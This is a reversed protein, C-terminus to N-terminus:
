FSHHAAPSLAEYAAKFLELPVTSHWHGTFVAVMCALFITSATAVPVTWWPLRRRGTLSLSLCGEVPCADLCEMCGLCEAGRVSRKGHVPVGAPCARMCRRCGTCKEGLRKVALPSWLALLGLLAGYPCLYRCWFNRVSLSVAALVALVVITTQLPRLFFELMKADAALNYPSRIFAEVQPLPMQWFIVYLFFALLLYKWGLMPLHLWGPMELITGARRGLAEILRSVAGVPCVWGCFGKRWLLSAAMIALLIALGAPHVPDWQGTAALQRLGLLASIPLFGEVSPPRAAPGAGNGTMWQYFLFFRAGTWLSLGLFALQVATRAARIPRIASGNKRCAM